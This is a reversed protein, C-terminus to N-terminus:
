RPQAKQEAGPDNSNKPWTPKGNTVVVYYRQDGMTISYTQENESTVTVDQCHSAKEISFKIEALRQAHQADPSDSFLPKKPRKLQLAETMGDFISNKCHIEKSLHPFNNILHQCATVTHQMMRHLDRTKAQAPSTAMSELVEKFTKLKQYYKDDNNEERDGQSTPACHKIFGSLQEDQYWQSRKELAKIQNELSQCEEKLLSEHSPPDQKFATAIQANVQVIKSAQDLIELYRSNKYNRKKLWFFWRDYTLDSAFLDKKANEIIALLAPWDPSERNSM